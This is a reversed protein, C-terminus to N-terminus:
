ELIEFNTEPQSGSLIVNGCTIRGMDEDYSPIFVLVDYGVAKLKEETPRYPDYEVYGRTTKIGNEECSITKHLPTIKVMFRDIPFLEKLKEADIIYEDALAINIAYKRGKPYPLMKGIESIEQLTLSSGGFMEERQKDDTSNISFQLGAGGNFLNNKIDCWELLMPILLKNNRPFMTTFVPHVLSDGIHDKTILYMDRTMKIVEPNWSPEGMRAFHVNLRETSKVEPHLLLALELQSKLDNYTANIGKGVKPVDCFTCKSNCGYQTSLTIVWKNELPEIDGNPVGELEREIGLFDAKINANKGYDGISLFELKGKDGEVICINGTPVKLNKVIKM